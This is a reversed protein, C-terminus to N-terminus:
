KKKKRRKRKKKKKYTGPGVAPLTKIPKVKAAM